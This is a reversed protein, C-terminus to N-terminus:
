GNTACTTSRSRVWCLYCLRWSTSSPWPSFLVGLALLIGLIKMGYAVECGFVQLSSPAWWSVMWWHHSDDPQCLPKVFAVERLNEFFVIAMIVLVVLVDTKTITWVFSARDRANQARWEKLEEM